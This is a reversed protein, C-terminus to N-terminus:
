IKPFSFSAVQAAMTERLSCVQNQIGHNIFSPPVSTGYGSDTPAAGTIGIQRPPLNSSHEQRTVSEENIQLLPELPEPQVLPQEPAPVPSLLGEIAGASNERVIQRDHNHSVTNRVSENQLHTEELEGQVEDTRETSATQYLPDFPPPTLNYRPPLSPGARPRPRPSPPPQPRPM